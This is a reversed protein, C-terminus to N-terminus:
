GEFGKLVTDVDDVALFYVELVLGTVVPDSRLRVSRGLNGYYFVRVRRPQADEENSDDIFSIHSRYFHFKPRRINNSFTKILEGRM